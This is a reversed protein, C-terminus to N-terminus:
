QFNPKSDPLHPMRHDWPMCRKFFDSWLDINGDRICQFSFMLTCRNLKVIIKRVSKIQLVLRCVTVSLIKSSVAFWKSHSVSSWDHNMTSNEATYFSHNRNERFMKCPFPIADRSNALKLGSHSEGLCIMIM